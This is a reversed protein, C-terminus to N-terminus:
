AISVMKYFLRRLSGPNGLYGRIVVYNWANIVPHKGKEHKILKGGLKIYFPYLGAKKTEVYIWPCNQSMTYNAAAAM